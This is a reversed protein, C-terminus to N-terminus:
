KCYKFNIVFYGGGSSVAMRFNNLFNFRNFFQKVSVKGVIRWHETEQLQTYKRSLKRMALPITYFKIKNETRSIQSSWRVSGM